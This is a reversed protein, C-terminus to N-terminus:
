MLHLHDLYVLQFVSISVTFWFVLGSEMCNIPFDSWIYSYLDEEVQLPIVTQYCM